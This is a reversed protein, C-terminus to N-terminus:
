TGSCQSQTVMMILHLLVVHLVSKLLYEFVKFHARAWQLAKLLQQAQDLRCEDPGAVQTHGALMLLDGHKSHELDLREKLGRVRAVERTGIVFRHAM